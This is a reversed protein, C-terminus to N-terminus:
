NKMCRVSIGEMKLVDTRVASDDLSPMFRIFSFREDSETASWWYGIGGIDFFACYEDRKSGPKGNFGSENTGGGFQEWGEKSKLKKGAIEEGGLFDVLTSWEKDTPVHYGDPALGRADHVAYWNYLKGYKPGNAPDNNYYCWAPKGNEGAIKWEEDSKAQPILDGNRFREVNLNETMWVQNGIKVERQSQANAQKCNLFGVVLLFLLIIKNLKM